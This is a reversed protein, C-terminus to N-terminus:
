KFLGTLSKAMEDVPSTVSQLSKFYPRLHDDTAGYKKLEAIIQPETMKAKICELVFANIQQEMTQTKNAKARPPEYPTSKFHDYEEKFPIKLTECIFMKFARASILSPVVKQVDSLFSPTAKILANNNEYRGNDAGSRDIKANWVFTVNADNCDVNIYTKQKQEEQTTAM